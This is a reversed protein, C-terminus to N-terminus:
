PDYNIGVRTGLRFSHTFPLDRFEPYLEYAVLGMAYPMFSGIRVSGIGVAGAVRFGPTRITGDHYQTVAAVEVDYLWTEDHIRLILPIAGAPRAVVDQSGDDSSQSIAGTGGLEIGGVLVIRDNFGYGPLLRLGGGGGLLVEGDELLIGLGGASEALIVFRETDTQVGTFDPDPSLWFPCQEDAAADARELLAKMRELTLLEEIEGLDEDAEEYAEEAPGGEVVIREDFWDLLGIRAEVETQCVSQLASNMADDLEHDDIIWGVRERTEVIQRLDSYLAREAPPDPLTACGALPLAAVLALSRIPSPLLAVPM